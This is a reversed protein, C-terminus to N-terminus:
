QLKTIGPSTRDVQPEGTMMELRSHNQRLTEAGIQYWEVTSVFCNYIYDEDMWYLLAGIWLTRVKSSPGARLFM